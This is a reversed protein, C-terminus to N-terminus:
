ALGGPGVPPLPKSPPPPAVPSTLGRVTAAPPLPLRLTALTGGDADDAPQLTLEARTGHLSALREHVQTLGFGGGRTSAAAGVGVGTDRVTLVLQGADVRAAVSVRGGPVKPELGHKIANEVLPQLLLPPVPLERLAPPLDLTVQLREGMRVSMLALYDAIREFETALPHVALRSANLTARLYAVLRDLMHQARAADVGILVRLNALTNFLMHPELQSQLLRLQHETALRQAVEAQARATSLRELTSIVVVSIATGLLGLALTLRAAPSGLELLSTSNFGTLRDALALGTAPGVLVALLAGPIVGYWGSAAETFPLGRASRVHDLLWAVGLRTGGVVLTSTTGICLSYVLKVGFGHGDLATLLLAIGLCLGGVVQLQRWARQRLRHWTDALETRAHGANADPAPSPPM